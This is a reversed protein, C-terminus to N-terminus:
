RVPAEITEVPAHSHSGAEHSAHDSCITEFRGDETVRVSLSHRFRGKLNVGRGGGELAFPVLGDTSKNLWESQTQQSRRWAEQEATPQARFAGTTPDLFIWLGSSWPVVLESATAVEQHEAQAVGESVGVESSAEPTEHAFLPAAMGICLALFIMPWHAGPLEARRSPMRM